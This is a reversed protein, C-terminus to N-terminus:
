GYLKYGRAQLENEGTNLYHQLNKHSIKREIGAAFLAKIESAFYFNEGDFHYHFPKEGFRDRACFLEKEKEDWIAFSFMGDLDSLCKERKYDYLALIVETDSQSVFKYGSKKLEERLEVYNYIEGNFTITYRGDVYHMPQKGSDTLDIIALRRHAFGINRNENVWYGEGDPGRHAIADAMNELTEKIVPKGSFNVWGAIGCM